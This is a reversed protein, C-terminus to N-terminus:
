HQHTQETHAKFNDLIAQWGMQQLFVLNETEGEFKECVKIKNGVEEFDLTVKRNDELAFEIQKFPIVKTYTGKFNFSMQGDRSAMTYSFQGNELLNNTAQPCHWDPSAANWQIIHKPDTWCEWVHNLPADILAECTLMAPALGFTESIEKIKSLAKPWLELFMTYFDDTADMELTFECTKADIERITYNEYSPAWSKIEDSTTDEVGNYIYGLHRISIFQYLDKEAIESIMGDLGGDKNAALFRITDGKNWGGEFYSGKTFAEAWLQYKNRDIITNWIAEKSASIIIKEIIKKM